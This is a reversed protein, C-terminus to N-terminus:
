LDNGTGAPLIGLPVGSDGIGVAVDRITGDGGLALIFDAGGEVAQRALPEAEGAAQTYRLDVAVHRQGLYAIAQEALVRGSGGGSVPNAILVAHRPPERQM